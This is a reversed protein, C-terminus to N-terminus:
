KIIKIMIENRRDMVQYPPNYGLFIYDDLYKIDEEDLKSKLEIVKEELISESAWGSFQLVAVTKSPEIKLEVDQRNPEPLDNLNMNEPMFFSMSSSSDNINMQVPSTMSIQVKASNGGFIYSAIRKFGTRSKNSYSNKALSTTAVILDPYERIEFGKYQAMTQYEISGTNEKQKTIIMQSFVVSVMLILVILIIFKM